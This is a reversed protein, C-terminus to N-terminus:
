FILIRYFIIFILWYIFLNFKLKCIMQKHECIVHLIRLIWSYFVNEKKESGSKLQCIKLQTMKLFQTVEVSYNKLHALESEEPKRKRWSKQFFKKQLWLTTNTLFNKFDNFKINM